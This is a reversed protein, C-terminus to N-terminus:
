AAHTAVSWQKRHLLLTLVYKTKIWRQCVRVIDPLHGADDKIAHWDVGRQVWMRVDNADIGMMMHTGDSRVITIADNDHLYFTVDDGRVTSHVRWRLRRAAAAHRLILMIVDDPLQRFM